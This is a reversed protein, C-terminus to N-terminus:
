MYDMPDCLTPCSQLSKARVRPPRILLARLQTAPPLPLPSTRFVALFMCITRQLSQPESPRLQAVSIIDTQYFLVLEPSSSDGPPLAQTWSVTFLMAAKEGGTGGVPLHPTFLELLGDRARMPVDKQSRCLQHADTKVDKHTRVVDGEDPLLMENVSM